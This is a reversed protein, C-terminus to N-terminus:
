ELVRFCVLWQLIPPQPCSLVPLPYVRRSTPQRVNPCPCLSVPVPPALKTVKDRAEQTVCTSPAFIFADPNGSTMMAPTCASTTACVSGSGPRHTPAQAVQRTGNDQANAEERAAM